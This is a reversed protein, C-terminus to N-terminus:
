SARHVLAGLAGGWMLHGLLFSVANLNGMAPDIIPAVLFTMVAYIMGGFVMGALIKSGRSKLRPAIVFGFILGLIASNMMHGMLGAMVAILDFSVPRAVTQLGRIVTAAIYTPASWFGAGHPLLGEIMMEWMGMVLSALLGAGLLRLTRNSSTATQNM